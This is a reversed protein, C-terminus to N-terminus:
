LRGKGVSSVREEESEVPADHWSESAENLRVVTPASFVFRGVAFELELDKFHDGSAPLEFDGILVGDVVRDLEGGGELEDFGFGLVVYNSQCRWEVILYM